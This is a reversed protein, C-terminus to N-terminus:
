QEHSYPRSSLRWYINGILYIKHLVCIITCGTVPHQATRISM